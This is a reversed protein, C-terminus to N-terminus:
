HGWGLATEYKPKGDWPHAWHYDIKVENDGGVRKTMPKGICKGPVAVVYDASGGSSHHLSKGIKCITVSKDKVTTVEYFDVHTEDYGGSTYLVDGVKLTHRFERRKALRKDIYEIHSKRSAISRKIMDLRSAANAFQHYWLPKGAKGAFAIGYYATYPGQRGKAEQEWTWIELDTGSPTLPPVDRMHAPLYSSRFRTYDPNDRAGALAGGGKVFQAVVYLVGIGLGVWALTKVADAIDATQKAKPETGAKRLETSGGYLAKDLALAEAPTAKNQAVLDAHKKAAEAVTKETKQNAVVQITDLAKDVILYIGVAQVIAGIAIAGFVIPPFGVQGSAHQPYGAGDVLVPTGSGDYQIRLKDSPFGEVAFDEVKDDWILKRKGAIADDAASVCIKSMELIDVAQQELDQSWAGLDPNEGGGGFFPLGLNERVQKLTNYASIASAKSSQIKDRLAGLYAGWAAPSGGADPPAGLWSTTTTTLSDYM